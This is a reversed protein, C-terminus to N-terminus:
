ASETLSGGSGLSDWEVCFLLLVLVVTMCSCQTAVVLQLLQLLVGLTISHRDRRKEARRSERAQRARQVVGVACSACLKIFIIAGALTTRVNNMINICVSVMSIAPLHM